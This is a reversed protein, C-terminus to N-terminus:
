VDLGITKTFKEPALLATRGIGAAARSIAPLRSSQESLALMRDFMHWGAWRVARVALDEDASADVSRYGRWFAETVPRLRDLEATGAAIVEADTPQHDAQGPHDKGVKEPIGNVARYLWEGAFAGVDRAPDGLRFEEWDILYLREGDWLIQDIRLDGHVPRHFAAAEGVLDVIARAVETDTHLISWAEISGASSGAYVSGPIAELGKVPPLPGTGSDAHSRGAGLTHVEALAKGALAALEGTFADDAALEAASVTGHLYEHVVLQHNLDYGLLRPTSLHELEHHAALRDFAAMHHIRQQIDAPQGVIQKVFVAHGSTTTGSWNDNRGRYSSVEDESLEGLELRSLLGNVHTVSSLAVPQVRIRTRTEESM